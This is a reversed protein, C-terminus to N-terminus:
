SAHLLHTATHNRRTADRLPVAVEARLTDGVAIPALALIRHVTLGPVGPFVSEVDAAKEGTALYLAGHDGVQGGSEAYFPTQDLVLEAKTGAAVREVQQKDVM